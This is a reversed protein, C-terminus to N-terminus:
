LRRGCIPCEINIAKDFMTEDSGAGVHIAEIGMLGTNNCYECQSKKGQLEKSKLQM